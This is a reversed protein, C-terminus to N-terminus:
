VAVEVLQEADQIRIEGSLLKPLLLDRLSSLDASHFRNALIRDFSPKIPDELKQTLTPGAFAVRITKFTDRTITNFVSGHGSRQLDAVKERVIYYVFSDSIGAKGTVGYCSQNMAMPEGVLACKGVTGRASVITTGVPLIKTSSKDVGLQTVHKETDIVFVDSPNPADVVSFWPINGNWYAAVSTKPTGGGILDVLDDLTRVEWGKPIWGMEETFEFESPFLNRLDDPLPKRADGLSERLAARAQLEEPIPHGAALANDIVPDFDIFWSKFLAQAMAELTENMRRNLEIKDDLSGLIHAIARQEPLPPIRVAMMHLHNRNVGPVAAKDSCSLFDIQRLFYSIFRVDNSKFDKVYLTTNLPWFDENVLYVIGITGYRGTIVGPGKVKAESHTGSIGSSSVVPVTGEARAAKPLDYGRKLEVVEGLSVQQWENGM